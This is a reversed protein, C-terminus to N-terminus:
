APAGRVHCGFRAKTKAHKNQTTYYKKHKPHINAKATNPKTEETSPLLNAGPLVDGFNGM